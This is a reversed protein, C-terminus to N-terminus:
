VLNKSCQRWGQRGFHEIEDVLTLLREVSGGQLGYGSVSFQARDEEFAHRPGLSGGHDESRQFAGLQAEDGVVEEATPQESLM